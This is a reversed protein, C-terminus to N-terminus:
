DKIREMVHGNKLFKWLLVGDLEGNGFTMLFEVVKVNSICINCWM